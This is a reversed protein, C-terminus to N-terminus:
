RRSGRTFLALAVGGLVTVGCGVLRASPHEDLLAIAGIAALVPVTLQVLAANLTLQEECRDPAELAETLMQTM